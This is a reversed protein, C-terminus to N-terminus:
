CWSLKVYMHGDSVGAGNGDIANFALPDMDVGTRHGCLDVVRTKVSQGTARNTVMLCKGCKDQSMPGLVGDACYATWPYQLLRCCGPCLHTPCRSSSSHNAALVLQAPHLGPPPQM